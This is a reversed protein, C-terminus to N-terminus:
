RVCSRMLSRPRLLLRLSHILFQGEEEFADDLYVVDEDLDDLPEVMVGIDDDVTVRHGSAVLERLLSVAGVHVAVGGILTHPEEPYRM